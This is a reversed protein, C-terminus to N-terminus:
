GVTKKVLSKNKYSKGKGKVSTFGSAELPSSKEGCDRLWAALLALIWVCVCGEGVQTRRPPPPMLVCVGWGGGLKGSPIRDPLGRGRGKCCGRAWHPRSGWRAAPETEMTILPPAPSCLPLGAERRSPGWWGGSARDGRSQNSSFRIFGMSGPPCSVQIKTEEREVTESLIERGAAVWWLLFGEPKSYFSFLPEPCLM